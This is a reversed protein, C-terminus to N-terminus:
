KFEEILKIYNDGHCSKPKCFCGLSKGELELVSDKFLKDKEMRAKAWKYHKAIVEERTGDKEIIFPNGFYGPRGIYVDCLEKHHVNVVKTKGM